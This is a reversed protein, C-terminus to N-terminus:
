RLEGQFSSRHAIFSSSGDEDKMTGREDNPVIYAVLRKDGPVDERIGVLTERLSPHQLLAAEIEGLEIWYCRIKVQHDMRGLIVVTGDPQRPGLHGSRCMVAGGEC